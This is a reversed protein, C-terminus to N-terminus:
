FDSRPMQQGHRGTGEHAVQGYGEIMSPMFLVDISDFFEVMDEVYHILEVRDGFDYSCEDQLSM